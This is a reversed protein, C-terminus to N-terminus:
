STFKFCLSRFPLVKELDPGRRTKRTGSPASRVPRPAGEPMMKANGLHRQLHMRAGCTCKGRSVIALTAQEAGSQSRPVPAKFCLKRLM